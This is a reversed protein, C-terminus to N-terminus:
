GARFGARAQRDFEDAPWYITSLVAPRGAAAIREAHRANEWLRDLHFLHVVDGRAYDPEAADCLEVEVGLRGLAAATQLIQTTDGGLHERLNKRVLWLARM